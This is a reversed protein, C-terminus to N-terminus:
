PGALLDKINGMTEDLARTIEAEDEDHETHIHVTVSSGANAESVQLWGSYSRDGGGSWELRRAASDSRFQADGEEHRGQVEAGVRLQAGDGPEALTM